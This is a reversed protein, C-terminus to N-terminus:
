LAVEQTRTTGTAVETVRVEISSSGGADASMIGFGELRVRPEYKDIAEAISVFHDLVTENTAPKDVLEPGESGFSRREVRTGVRTTFIVDLSQQIHDWGEIAKGTHRCMGTM